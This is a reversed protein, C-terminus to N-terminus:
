GQKLRAMMTIYGELGGIALRDFATLVMSQSDILSLAHANYKRASEPGEVFYDKFRVVDLFGADKPETNGWSFFMGGRISESEFDSRPQGNELIEDQYCRLCVHGLNEHDRFQIHWGNRPNQECVRRACARCAVYDFEGSSCYAHECEDSCFWVVRPAEDWPTDYLEAFAGKLQYDEEVLNCPWMHIQRQIHLKRYEQMEKLANLDFEEECM